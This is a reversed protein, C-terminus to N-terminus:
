YGDAIDITYVNRGPVAEGQISSNDPSWTREDVGNRARRESLVGSAGWFALALNNTTPHAAAM